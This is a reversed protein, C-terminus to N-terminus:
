TQSAAARHFGVSVPLGCVWRQGQAARGDRRDDAGDVTRHEQTLRDTGNSFLSVVPHDLGHDDEVSGCRILRQVGVIGLPRDGHHGVCVALSQGASAVATRRSRGALVQAKAVVVVGPKGALGLCLHGQELLSGVSVDHHAAKLHVM